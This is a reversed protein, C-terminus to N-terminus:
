SCMVFSTRMSVSADCTLLLDLSPHAIPVQMDACTVATSEKGVTYLEPLDFVEVVQHLLIMAGDFPQGFRSQSEKHHSQSYSAKKQSTSTIDM